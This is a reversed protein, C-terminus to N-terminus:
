CISDEDSCGFIIRPHNFYVSLFIWFISNLQIILHSTMTIGGIFYGIFVSLLAIHLFSDKKPLKLYKRYSIYIFLIITLIPIIGILGLEVFITVFFNHVPGSEEYSRRYRFNDFGIGIMWNERLLSISENLYGIRMELTSTSSMRDALGSDNHFPFLFLSLILIIILFNGIFVFSKLKNKLNFLLNITLIILLCIYSTRSFSLLTGAILVVVFILWKIKEKSLRSRFYFYLGMSVVLPFFLGATNPDLFPGSPQYIGKVKSTYKYIFDSYVNKPLLFINKKTFLEFILYLVTSTSFIILIKMWRLFDEREIVSFKLAFYFLIPFGFQYFNSTSRLSNSKVLASYISWALYILIILDIFHFNVRIKKSYIHGISKSFFLILFILPINITLIGFRVGFISYSNIWIPCWILLIFFISYITSIKFKIIIFIAIISLILAVLALLGYGVFLGGMFIALLFVCIEKM